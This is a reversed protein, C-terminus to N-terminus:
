KPRFLIATTISFLSMRQRRSYVKATDTELLFNEDMFTKAM